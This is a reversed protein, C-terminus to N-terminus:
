ENCDEKMIWNYDTLHNRVPDKESMDPWDLWEAPNKLGVRYSAVSPKFDPKSKSEPKLNKNVFKDISSATQKIKGKSQDSLKNLHNITAKAHQISQSYKSAVQDAIQKLDFLDSAKLNNLDRLSHLAVNTTTEDSFNSNEKTLGNQKSLCNLMQNHYFMDAKHLYKTLAQADGLNYKDLDIGFSKNHQLFGAVENSQFKLFGNPNQKSFHAYNMRLLYPALKM